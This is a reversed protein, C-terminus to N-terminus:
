HINEFFTVKDTVFDKHETLGEQRQIENFCEQFWRKICKQETVNLWLFVEKPLPMQGFLYCLCFINNEVQNSYLLLDFVPCLIWEVFLFQDLGKEM